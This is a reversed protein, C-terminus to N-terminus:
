LLKDVEMVVEIGAIGVIGRGEEEVFHVRQARVFIYGEVEALSGVEEGVLVPLYRATDGGDDVFSGVLLKALLVEAKSPDIKDVVEFNGFGEELSGFVPSAGLAHRRDYAGQAEGVEVGLAHEDHAEVLEVGHLRYVVVVVIGLM